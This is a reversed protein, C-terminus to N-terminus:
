LVTGEDDTCILPGGSDGQCGDKGGKLWGACFMADKVLYGSNATTECTEDSIIKLDVEQLDTAAKGNDMVGWGAAWCRLM